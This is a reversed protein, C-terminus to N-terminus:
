GIKILKPPEIFGYPAFQYSDTWREEDEFERPGTWDLSDGGTHHLPGLTNRLTGVVEVEVTNLGKKLASTVEGRWPSFPVSGIEVGNVTIYFTSGRAGSLDLEHRYQEIDSLDFEMKYIMTGSYFPYGKEVWSGLSLTDPERTVPFGEEEQGVAFDGVLYINEIETDWLFDTVARITNVGQVVQEAIAFGSIARDIHWKGASTEVQKGNVEVTFRDASEMALELREPINQVTFTFTFVTKNTRTRVNKMELVWPQYDDYESIGTAQWISKRAKWVPQNKLLVKGDIELTCRDLTLINDHLRQFAYPGEITIVEEPPQPIEAGEVSTQTQDVLFIRSGAAPLSTKIITRGSELKSAYRYARGTLPDMEVTGGLANLDVTIDQPSTRDTNALFIIHAAAETRHNVLVNQAQAGDPRTVSVDRGIKEVVLNVADAPLDQLISVNPRGAFLRLRESEAGSVRAPIDGLIIVTGTFSELLDLTSSLWTYALPLVVCRYQSEGVSLRGGSAKGHAILIREDGLDFEIHEALLERVLGRFSSEVAQLKVGGDPINIDLVGYASLLPHLVLVPATSKGRSVAWSVRALYDCAARFHDWYPQHYSFTPPFDHKREGKLSFATLHPCLFTVGLALNFDAIWKMDEFTMSQGAAGFIECVARKKGLQNAASSLQKATWPNRINRGLHDIGPIDMYEYHAMVSGGSVTMSYFDDEFLYHGTFLVEHEKCWNALSVTFAEIFRENVTRWFDHRFKFGEESGDVLRHLHDLPSYGHIKEFYEAFGSTWPFSFASQDDNPRLKIVRNVNPEDTFIGPMYKGFDYRFLKSYKEYTNEIFDKVTDPNLLDVYGEGNFRGHGRTYRREYFVGVGTLDAPRERLLVLGNEANKRTFAAAKELVDSELTSAEGTWTLAMALNEDKGETTNGGAFGSPWRDEDYLWAEMELERAVEVGRRIARMWDDSLYRTRLGKRAHMFFGGFGKKKMERIRNEIESPEMVDNWSWFPSPRYQRPPDVFEKLNM